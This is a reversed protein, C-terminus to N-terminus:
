QSPGQTRTFGVLEAITDVPALAGGPKPAPQRTLATSRGNVGDAWEPRALRHNYNSGTTPHPHSPLYFLTQEDGSEAHTSGATTHQAQLPGIYPGTVGASKLRRLAEGERAPADMKRSSVIAQCTTVDSSESAYRSLLEEDEHISLTHTSAKQIGTMGLKVGATSDSPAPAQAGVQYLKAPILTSKVQV